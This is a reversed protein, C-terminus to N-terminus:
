NRDSEEATVSKAEVHELFADKNSVLAAAAEPYLQTGAAEEIIQLAKEVGFKPRYCRDSTLADFTDAVAIIRARQPIEDGKLGDPYGKGDIREHHHRIDPLCHSLQGIPSLMDAGFGPHEKIVAFEEATLAGPKKLIEEPVKIKGIDHLLSSRSLAEKESLPLNLMNGLLMSFTSVRESHGRTYADKGEIIRVLAKITNLFFEDLEKYLNANRIVTGSRRMVASVLMAEGSKFDGQFKFLVLTGYYEEEVAVPYGSAASFTESLQQTDADAAMTNVTLVSGGSAVREAIARSVRRVDRDLSRAEGRSDIWRVWEGEGGNLGEKSGAPVWCAADYNVLDKFSEVVYDIVSATEARIPIREGIEYMLALEEYRLSLDSTLSRVELEYFSSQAVLLSLSNLLPDIGTTTQIGNGPAPVRLGAPVECVLVAGFQAASHMVPLAEIRGGGECSGCCPGHTNLVESALRSRMTACQKSCSGACGGACTVVNGDNDVLEICLAGDRNLHRVLEAVGPATLDASLRGKVVSM